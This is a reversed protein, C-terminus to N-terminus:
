CSQGKGKYMDGRGEYIDIQPTENRRIGFNEEIMTCSRITFNDIQLTESQRIGFNEEFM